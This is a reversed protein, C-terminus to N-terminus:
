PKKLMLSLKNERIAENKILKVGLKNLTDVANDLSDDIMQIFTQSRKFFSRDIKKKMRSFAILRGINEDFEDEESCTSIGIYRNPMLLKAYLPDYIFSDFPILSPFNTEAFRIFLENTGEMICIVKKKERNVIFKCDKPQINYKM